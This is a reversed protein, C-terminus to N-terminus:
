GVLSMLFKKLKKRRLQKALQDQPVRYSLYVGNTILGSDDQGFSILFKLIGDKISREINPCQFMFQECFKLFDQPIEKEFEVLRSGKYVRFDKEEDQIADKLKGFRLARGHGGELHDDERTFEFSLVKQPGIQIFLDGGDLQYWLSSSKEDAKLKQSKIQHVDMTLNYM